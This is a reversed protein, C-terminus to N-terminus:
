LVISLSLGTYKSISISNFGKVDAMKGFAKYFFIKDFNNKTTTKWSNAKM